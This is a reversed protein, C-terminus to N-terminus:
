LRSVAPLEMACASAEEPTRIVSMPAGLETKESATPPNQPEDMTSCAYMGLVAFMAYFAKKM